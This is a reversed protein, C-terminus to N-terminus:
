LDGAHLDREIRKGATNRMWTESLSGKQRVKIISGSEGIRGVVIGGWEGWRMDNVEMRGPRKGLEAGRNTTSMM